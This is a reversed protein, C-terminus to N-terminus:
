QCNPFKSHGIRTAWFGANTVPIYENAYYFTCDDAPDVTMASYDGWRSVGTESGTGTFVNSEVEMYNRLENVMRGTYRISPFTSTADSVSYGLAINGMKDMAISPMWRSSGDPSFTSAQFVQPSVSTVNRIEYWRIAAVPGSAPQVTHAAVIRERGGTNRYRVAHMIHVNLSEVLRTTSPQPICAGRSFGLCPDSYTPVTLDQSTLTSNTPTGFDVHFKFLSLITSPSFNSDQTLYMGPAGAPPLTTGDFEVPQVAFNSTTLQFCVQSAPLGALMNSRQLACLKPGTFPGTPWAFINYSTYYADPWVGVKPYDMFQGYDFEYINYAGTADATQSVAICEAGIPNSIAFQSLVWRNALKDYNVIPDGSNLDHCATGAPFSSWLNKNLTPGALIAGTNKDFVAFALNVMQVYQGNGVAGVTDPPTVNGGGAANIALGAFGTMNGAVVDADLYRSQTSADIQGNTGARPGSLGLWWPQDPDDDGDEIPNQSILTNVTPFSSVPATVAFATNSTVTMQPTANQARVPAPKSVWAYVLITAVVALAFAKFLRM